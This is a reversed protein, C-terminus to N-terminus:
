VSKTKKYLKVLSAMLKGIIPLNYFCNVFLIKNTKGNYGEPFLFLSKLAHIFFKNTKNNNAKVSLHFHCMSLLRQKSKLPLKTKLEKKSFIKKLYFLEKEWKNQDGHTFSDSASVYVTTRKKIQYVTFGANLIRLSTDMDECITVEPDFKHESFISKRVCWRQPNVTYTLFYHFPNHKEFDPCLRESRLGSETEDWANCFLFAKPFSLDQLEKHFTELHDPLHYDDADLFCIYDGKAINIGKNRSACREINENNKLYIIRHDKFSSIIEFTNDTSADDIIILEFDSFTQNLISEIAKSIHKARNYSPIVISFFPM